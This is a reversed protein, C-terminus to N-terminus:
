TSTDPTDASTRLRAIEAAVTDDLSKVTARDLPLATVSHARYLTNEVDSRGNPYALALVVATGNDLAAGVEHRLGSRLEHEAVAAAVAGGAGGVVLALLLPEFVLGFLAGIGAGILAGSRGHRNAAEVVEAHGQDDRTVLAASRLEMGHKLRRELEGFDTRAADLDGYAAVLILQHDDDIKGADM